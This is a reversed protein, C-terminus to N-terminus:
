YKGAVIFRGELNQSVSKLLLTRHNLLKVSPPLLSVMASFRPLVSGDSFSLNRVPRLFITETGFDSIKRLSRSALSARLRARARFALPEALMLKM